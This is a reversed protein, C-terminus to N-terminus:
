ENAGNRFFSLVLDDAYGDRDNGFSAQSSRGPGRLRTGGCPFREAGPVANAGGVCRFKAAGTSFTVILGHGGDKYYITTGDEVTM